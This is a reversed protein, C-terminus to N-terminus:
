LEVWTGRGDITFENSAQQLQSFWTSIGVNFQFKKKAEESVFEIMVWLGGMYRLDINDFGESVLVVKRNSLYVFDKVKGMLCHSYDKQNVCSEDLVLAPNSEVEVNMSNNLSVRQFRAVNAQIRHRGIWVTCLNNVLREVDFVKIFRVFGLRKGM